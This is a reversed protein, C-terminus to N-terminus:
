RSAFSKVYLQILFHAIVVVVMVIIVQLLSFPVGFLKGIIYIIAGTILAQVAGPITVSLNINM